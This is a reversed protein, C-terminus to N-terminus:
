DSQVIKDPRYSPVARGAISHAVRNLGTEVLRKAHRCVRSSPQINGVTEVAPDLNNVPIKNNTRKATRALNPNSYSVGCCTRKVVGLKQVNIQGPVDVHNIEVRKKM